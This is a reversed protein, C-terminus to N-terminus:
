AFLNIGTAHMECRAFEIEIRERERGGERGRRGWVHRQGVQLPTARGETLSDNVCVFDSVIFAVLYTSMKVSTQFHTTTSGDRHDEINEAPMNSVAHYGSGHTIHMTFNAKMAPEDFCPFARRADTPEFQTTALYREEGRSNIYSSKYFGALDDRLLYRFAMSVYVTGPSLDSPTEFVYFDNERQFQGTAQVDALGGEDQVTQVNTASINMDKAHVLIYRTASNVSCTINVNGTVALTDMNVNLVVDYHSPTVDNPLRVNNWPMLVTGNGTHNSGGGAERPGPVLTAVIIVVLLILAALLTLGGVLLCIRENRTFSQPKCISGLKRDDDDSVVYKRSTGERSSDSDSMVLAVGGADSDAGSEDSLDKYAFGKGRSKGNRSMQTCVLLPNLRASETHELVM